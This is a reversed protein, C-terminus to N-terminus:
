DMCNREVAEYGNLEVSMSEIVIQTIPVQNGDSLSAIYDVVEFGDVVGGFATYQADLTHAPEVVIFFQSSASDLLNEIRAMSIVGRYHQLDNTSKREQMEGEIFCAGDIKGGQIVFDDIVRHFENGDYDGDQIYQIFSNVTNPALDPFLQLKIEGIDKVVITAVPNTLKLYSSYDLSALVIPEDEPQIFPYSEISSDKGCSSLFTTVFVLLLLSIKRM